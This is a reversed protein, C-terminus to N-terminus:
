ALGKASSMPTGPTEPNKADIAVAQAQAVAPQKPLVDVIMKTVDQVSIGFYSLADPIANIALRAASALAESKVDVKVGELKVAGIAILGSAQRTVFAAIAERHRAEIDVGFKQKVWYAFWSIAATTVGAVMTVAADRITAVWTEPVAVVTDAHAVSVMACVVMAVLAVKRM